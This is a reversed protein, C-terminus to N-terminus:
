RGRRPRSVRLEAVHGQARLLQEIRELRHRLAILESLAHDVKGDVRRIREKPTGEPHQLLPPSAPPMSLHLTVRKSM